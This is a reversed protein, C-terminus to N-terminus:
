GLLASAVGTMLTAGLLILAASTLREIHARARGLRAQVPRSSVALALTVFWLGSSSLVALSYILGRSPSLQSAAMTTTLGMFFLAAQVNTVSTLFGANFAARFSGSASASAETAVTAAAPVRAKNLMSSLWPALSRCGLYFLYAGGAGQLLLKAAPFQQVLLAVGFIGALLHVMNAGIIGCAAALGMLRSQGLAHRVVVAFDPGPNMASLLTVGMLALLTNLSM